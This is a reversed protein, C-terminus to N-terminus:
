MRVSVSCLSPSISSITISKSERCIMHSGPTVSNKSSFLPLHLVTTRRVAMKPSIGVIKSPFIQHLSRGINRYEHEM